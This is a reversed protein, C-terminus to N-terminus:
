VNTSLLLLLHSLQIFFLCFPPFLCEKKKKLYMSVSHWRCHCVSVESFARDKLPYLQVIFLYVCLCFIRWFFTSPLLYFPIIPLPFFDQPKQWQIVESRFDFFQIFFWRYIQLFFIESLSFLLHLISLSTFCILSHKPIQKIYIINPLLKCKRFLFTVANRWSIILNM